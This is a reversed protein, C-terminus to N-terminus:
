KIKSWGKTFKGKSSRVFLFYYGYGFIASLVGVIGFIQSGGTRVTRTITTTSVKLAKCEIANKAGQYETTTGVPCVMPTNAKGPCYYGIPCIQCYGNNDTYYGTQSVCPQVVVAPKPIEPTQVRNDTKITIVNIPLSPVNPTPTPVVPAPVVVVVNACVNNKMEQGSPCTNCIPPNIAGNTCVVTKCDSASTSGMISTTNAPCVTCTTSGTPVFTNIACDIPGRYERTIPAQYCTDGGADMWGLPCERIQGDAIKQLATIKTFSQATWRFQTKGATLDSGCVLPDYAVNYNYWFTNAGDCNLDSVKFISTTAFDSRGGTSCATMSALTGSEIAKINANESAYYYSCGLDHTRLEKIACTKDLKIYESSCGDVYKTYTIKNNATCRAKDTSLTGGNGCVVVQTTNTATAPCYKGAPCPACTNDTTMYEGGANCGTTTAPRSCKTGNEITSYGSPCASNVNGTQTTEPTKIDPNVYKPNFRFNQKGATVSLINSCVILGSNKDFQGVSYRKLNYGVGNCQRGDYDRVDSVLVKDMNAPDIKCMGNEAPVSYQYNACTSDTAKVCIADMTSYGSPCGTTYTPSTKAPIVCTMNIQTEEKACTYIADALSTQSDSSNVSQLMLMGSIALTLTCIAVLGYVMKSLLTQKRNSNAEETLIKQEISKIEQGMKLIKDDRQNLSNTTKNM